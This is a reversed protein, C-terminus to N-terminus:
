RTDLETVTGDDQLVVQRIVFGKHEISIPEGAPGDRVVSRAIRVADELNDTDGFHDETVDSIIRYLNSSM